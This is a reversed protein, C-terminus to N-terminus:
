SVTIFIGYVQLLSKSVLLEDTATTTSCQM